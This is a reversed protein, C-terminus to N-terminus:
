TGYSTASSAPSRPATPSPASRREQGDATFVPSNILRMLDDSAEFMREFSALDAEVKSVSNSQLALEFLSGAYREAVGSIPSSSQAM